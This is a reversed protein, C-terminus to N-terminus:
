RGMAAIRANAKKAKEREPPASIDFQPAVRPKSKSGKPRGPKRPNSATPAPPAINIASFQARVRREEVGEEVPEEAEEEAEVKVVVEDLRGLHFEVVAGVDSAEEWKVPRLPMRPRTVAEADRSLRPLRFASQLPPASCSAPADDAFAAAVDGRFIITRQLSSMIITIRESCPVYKRRFFSISM